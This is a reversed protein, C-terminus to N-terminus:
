VHARGIEAIEGGGPQRPRQRRHRFVSPAARRSEDDDMQRTFLSVDKESVKGGRGLRQKHVKTVIIGQRRLTVQVVAQGGARMQGKIVKGAKDKGEWLYTVEKVKAVAAATAM